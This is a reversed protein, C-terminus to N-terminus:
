DSEMLHKINLAHTAAAKVAQSFTLLRVQWTNNGVKYADKSVDDRERIRALEDELGIVQERYMDALKQAQQVQNELSQHSIVFTFSM